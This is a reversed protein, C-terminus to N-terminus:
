AKAKAGAPAKEEGGATTELTGAARQLLLNEVRVAGLEMAEVIGRASTNVFMHAVICSVAITLGFATHNMAHSIGTTLLVSRQEPAALGVAAFAEILGFITGILGVLTAINALSWLTQIRKMIKPSVELTAEEIAAAIAQRGNHARMLAARVVRPVAAAPAANCARIARDINNTRILKEIQDLFPDAAISYVFYVRYFREFIVALAVVSVTVNVFIGNGAARFFEGIGTLM